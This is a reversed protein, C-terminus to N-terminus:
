LRWRIGGFASLGPEGFGSVDEYTTDTANEIRGYVQLADTLDYAARVDVRLFSDNEAPFDPEDGNIQLSSSFTLKPTPRLSLIATGRHPPIRLQRADTDKDIADTYTYSLSLSLADTFDLQGELEVGRSRARRINFYGFRAFEFDIQDRVSQHYFTGAFRYGLQGASGYTEIGADVGNAREPALDPNPVIGFQSFNLEFLTPARFGKGWSSRLVTTQRATRHAVWSAAVRGTTAGEFNSFEDRRAGGSLTLGDIPQWELLGFVAGATASEDFGSVDATTQEIEAGGIAILANSLRYEGIYDASFRSGDGRFTEVGENNNVRDIASYGATATGSFQPGRHNLQLTLAGEDTKERELTDDLLFLPPPFGDIEAQSSSFRGILALDVQDSLKLGSRISGGISKYADREEGASARSIGDTRTGTVTGRFYAESSSQSITAAGRAFGNAGGEAYGSLPAGGKKTTISVVGGIADAGYVLSQPGRLIEITEIDAVDLNAFNFGGQPATTDNVVVGDIVVLTQGTTGGRLRASTIGGLSGSRSIAVGPADRLADAITVYQREAIMKADIISVTSGIEEKLRPRRNAVVVIVDDGTKIATEVHAQDNTVSYQPGARDQEQAFAPGSSIAKTLAIISIAGASACHRSLPLRNM